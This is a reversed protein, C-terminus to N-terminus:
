SRFDSSQYVKGFAGQGIIDLLEFHFLNVEGISEASKEKKKDLNKRLNSLLVKSM